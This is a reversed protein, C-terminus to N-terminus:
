WLLKNWLTPIDKYHKDNEARVWLYELRKSDHADAWLKVREFGLDRMSSGVAKGCRLWKDQESLGLWDRVNRASVAGEGDGLIRELEECFPGMRKAERAIKQEEPWLSEPINLPEGLDERVVAEAWLQETAAKLGDLDIKGCKVHWFRRDAFDLPENLETTGIFVCQRPQSVIFRGYAARGRDFQRTQVSKIKVTEVRNIAALDPIEMLWIGGFAEQQKQENDFPPFADSFFEDHMALIRGVSSKGSGTKGKLMLTHDFKCGPQKVRRVAAILWTAGFMGNIESREAGCFDALWTDIRPKGDWKLAGLLDRVAHCRCEEAMRLCVESLAPLSPTQKVCALILQGRLRRLAMDSLEGDYGDGLGKISARGTFEDFTLSVGLRASIAEVLIEYNKTIRPRKDGEVGAAKKLNDRRKYENFVAVSMNSPKKGDPEFDSEDVM